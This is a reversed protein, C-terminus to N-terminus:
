VLIKGFDMLDKSILLLWEKAMQNTILFIEKMIIRILFNMNVLDPSYMKIAIVQIHIEMLFLYKVNEM